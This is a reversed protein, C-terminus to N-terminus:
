AEGRDSRSHSVNSSVPGGRYAVAARGAVITIYDPVTEYILLYHV